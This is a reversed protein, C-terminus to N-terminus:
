SAQPFDYQTSLYQRINREDAFIKQGNVSEPALERDKVKRGASLVLVPLSQHGEGLLTVLASRPRPFELYSVEILDRLKPFFSLMGEIPTSDSCYFPGLGANVFGPRLLYLRDKM